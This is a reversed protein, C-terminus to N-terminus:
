SAHRASFNKGVKAREVNGAPATKPSMKDQIARRLPLDDFHQAYQM